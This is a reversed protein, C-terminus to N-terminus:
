DRIKTCKYQKLTINSAANIWFTFHKYSNNPSSTDCLVGDNKHINAKFIGNFKRSTGKSNKTIKEFAKEAEEESPFCSVGAAKCTSRYDSNNLWRKRKVKNQIVAQWDRECPNPASKTFRYLDTDCAESKAPPCVYSRKDPFYQENFFHM